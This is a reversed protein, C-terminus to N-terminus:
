WIVDIAKEYNKNFILKFFTFYKMLRLIMGIVGFILIAYDKTSFKFQEM